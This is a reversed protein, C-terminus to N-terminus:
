SFTKKRQKSALMILYHYTTIFACLTQVPKNMQLDTCGAIELGLLLTCPESVVQMKKKRLHHTRIDKKPVVLSRQVRIEKSVCIRM